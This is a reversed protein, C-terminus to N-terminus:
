AVWNKLNGLEAKFENWLMWSIEKEKIELEKIKQLSKEYTEKSIQTKFKELLSSWWRSDITFRRDMIQEPLMKEIEDKYKDFLEQSVLGDQKQKLLDFITIAKNYILEKLYNQTIKSDATLSIRSAIFWIDMWLKFYEKSNQPIKEWLNKLQFQWNFQVSYEAKFMEYEWTQENLKEYVWLKLQVVDSMSKEDKNPKYNIRDRLSDIDIITKWDKDDFNMVNIWDLGVAFLNEDIKKITFTKKERLKPYDKYYIEYLRQIDQSENKLVENMKLSNL